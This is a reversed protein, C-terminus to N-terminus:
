NPKQFNMQIEVTTEIPQGNLTAPRYKWQMIANKAAAGLIPNGSVVDVKTVAGNRDVAAELKVTGSLSRSRAFEPVQPLVRRILQAEQLRDAVAAPAPRAPAPAVPPAPPNASQSLSSPLSSNKELALDVTGGPPPPLSVQAQRRPAAKGPPPVFARLPERPTAEAETRIRSRSVSAPSQSVVPPLHPAAVPPQAPAPTLTAAPAAQTAPVGAGGRRFKSLAGAAIVLLIIVALWLLRIRRWVPVRRAAPRPLPAVAPAQPLAVPAPIVPAAEVPPELPEAKEQGPSRLDEEPSAAHTGRITELLAQAEPRNPAALKALIQEAEELQGRGFLVQASRWEDQYKKDSELEERLVQLAPEGPSSELARQLIQEAQETEGYALCQRVEAVIMECERRRISARVDEMLHKLEAEDPFEEYAEEILSLAQPWANAAIRQRITELRRTLKKRREQELLRNRFRAAADMLEISAPYAELAEELVTLAVQWQQREELLAARNLAEQVFRHQEWRPLGKEIEALRSLLTADDPLEALKEKLFQAALDPRDQDLRWRVEQLAARVVAASQMSQKRRELEARMAVIEPEGPYTALASDLADMAQDLRAEQRFEDCKELALAIARAKALAAKAEERLDRVRDEGPYGTNLKDLLDVAEEFRREAMLNAADDLQSQLQRKREGQAKQAQVHELWHEVKPSDPCARWLAELLSIAEDFSEVLLLSKAKALGHEIDAEKKQRRRVDDILQLLAAGGQTEPDRDLAEIVKHRAEALSQRALLERAEAVLQAAEDSKQRLLRVTELRDRATVNEADLQLVSALCEAARSFHHAGSAEEAEALLEQVRSRMARQQLRLRVGAHLRQAGLNDPDLELVERLLQQAEDLQEGEPGTEEVLRHANALMPAAHARKLSRLIPEVDFQLDELSQYRLERRKALARLVIHELEEPCEPVLGRLPPPDHRLVDIGMAGSDGTLFPHRGALLEYYVIGFTFLDCLSDAAASGSFEEPSAYDDRDDREPRVIGFDQLTVHGDGALVIGAPHIGLHSLGGRHAARVGEAVQWMILMKGLLTLPKAAKMVEKLDEGELHQMAAFPLGVHEGLEYIAIISPHRLKAAVAVERRFRDHLELDAIDALIKLTVPRGTDRDFGRFVQVRSREAIEAEVEYKGIHAM